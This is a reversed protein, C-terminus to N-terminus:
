PAPGPAPPDRRGLIGGEVRLHGPRRATRTDARRHPQRPVPDGPRHPHDEIARLDRWAIGGVTRMALATWTDTVDQVTAGVYIHARASEPLVRRLEHILGLTSHGTERTGEAVRALDLREVRAERTIVEASEAPIEGEAAQARALAALM